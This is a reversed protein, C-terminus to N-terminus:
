AVPPRGLPWPTACIEFTLTPSQPLPLAASCRSVHRAIRGEDIALTSAKKGSGFRTLVLGAKADIM